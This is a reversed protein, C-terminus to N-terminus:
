SPYHHIMNIRNYDNEQVVTIVILLTGEQGHTPVFIVRQEKALKSAMVYGFLYFIPM